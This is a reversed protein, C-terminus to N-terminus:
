RKLEELYDILRLRRETVHGIVHEMVFRVEGRSKSTVIKLEQIPNCESVERLVQLTNTEIRLVNRQAPSCRRCAVGGGSASLAVTPSTTDISEGCGVCVEFSPLLGLKQLAHLEFRLTVSAPDKREDLDEITKLLLELLGPIPQHNETMTQLFEAAYYGCYLPLLGIQSSRFRRQLKAETLLDLTDGSKAPRTKTRRTGGETSNCQNATCTRPKTCIECIRIGLLRFQEIHESDVRLSQGAHCRTFHSM